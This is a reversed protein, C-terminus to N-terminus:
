RVAGIKGRKRKQSAKYKKPYDLGVADVAQLLVLTVQLGNEDLSDKDLM